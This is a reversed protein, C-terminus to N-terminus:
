QWLALSTIPGSSEMVASKTVAYNIASTAKQFLHIKKYLGASDAPIVSTDMSIVNHNLLVQHESTSLVIYFTQYIDAGMHSTTSSVYTGWISSLRLLGICRHSIWSTLTMSTTSHFITATSTCKVSAGTSTGSTQQRHQTTMSASASSLSTRSLIPKIDRQKEIAPVASPQEGQQPSAPQHAQQKQQPSTPQPSAPQAALDGVMIVEEANSASSATGAM